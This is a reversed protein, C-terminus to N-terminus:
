WPADARTPSRACCTWCRAARSPTWPQRRSTPSCSRRSGVLARAIAVRQKQGGSLDAPYSAAKHALAVSTSRRWRARRAAERGGIGRVDLALGVNEVATLAPFLNFGQFVFGIHALRIRPLAREPLGVIEEGDVRVSGASAALIAGMISLLTTKGSGSPGDDPAGRGPARRSGRRAARPRGDPGNRLDQRCRTRVRGAAGHNRCPGVGQVGHGPRHADGQQHLRGVRGPM